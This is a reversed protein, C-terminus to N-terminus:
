QGFAGESRDITHTTKQINGSDDIWLKLLTRGQSIVIRKLAENRYIFCSPHHEKAYSILREMPPAKVSQKISTWDFYDETRAAKEVFGYIDATNTEAARLKAREVDERKTINDFMTLASEVSTYLCTNTEDSNFTKYFVCFITKM